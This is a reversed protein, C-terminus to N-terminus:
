FVEMLLNIYSNGAERENRNMAYNANSSKITVKLLQLAFSASSVCLVRLFYAGAIM